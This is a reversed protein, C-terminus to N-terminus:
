DTAGREAYSSVMGEPLSRALAALPDTATEAEALRHELQDIPADSAVLLLGDCVVHVRYSGDGAALSAKDAASV